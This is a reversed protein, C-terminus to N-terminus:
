NGDIADDISGDTVTPPATVNHVAKMLINGNPKLELQFLTEDRVNELVDDTLLVQIGAPGNILLQPRLGSSSSSIPSSPSPVSSRQLHGNSNQSALKLVGSGGSSTSTGHARVTVFSGNGTWGGGAGDSTTSNPTNLANLAELLGPIKSLSQVLEAVTNLHLYIAHYINAEFSVYITLRPTIAKSHLINFMRIGDALGCIKCLDDKSMRLIDSGSFQAFTKTYASLRHVILWQAVGAPSTERTICAVYDEMETAQQPSLVGSAVTQSQEPLSKCLGNTSSVNSIGVPNSTPVPATVVPMTGVLPKVTPSGVPGGNCQLVSTMINELKNFQGPSTPGALLPSVNRKIHDPSFGGGLPALAVDGTIDSLITCDCSRQYKEQETVPRKLIKERDQKHKRDAGKLKFVKIQCAAAHLPRIMDKEDTTGNASAANNTANTIGGSAGNTSDIFTEVQIRFPVGKEGGHKKPTFETSICNVKVYVGVEKMPDWFVEITNLLNNSTPQVQLLGYSLPIDVDLIREGPRSVQWLQMQEREMYQLRREHFCIKIISKLIKGRFPSLDGLKKLKIEYSQGQNLYTLSEENNKTAISTAAALVYQFRNHDDHARDGRIATSAVSGDQHMQLVGGNNDTELRNSQLFTQLTSLGTGIAANNILTQGGNM